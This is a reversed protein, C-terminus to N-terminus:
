YSNTTAKGCNLKPGTFYENLPIFYDKKRSSYNAAPFYIWSGRRTFRVRTAVIEYESSPFYKAYNIKSFSREVKGAARPEGRARERRGALIADGGRLVRWVTESQTCRARSVAFSLFFSLHSDPNLTYSDIIKQKLCSIIVKGININRRSINM